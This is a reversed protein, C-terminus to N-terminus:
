SFDHGERNREKGIRTSTSSVEGSRASSALFPAGPKRRHAASGLKELVAPTQSLPRKKRGEPAQASLTPRTGVAQATPQM